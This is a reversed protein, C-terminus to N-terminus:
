WALCLIGKSPRQAEEFHPTADAGRLLIAGNAMLAMIGRPGVNESRILRLWDIREEDSLRPSISATTGRMGPVDSSASPAQQRDTRM